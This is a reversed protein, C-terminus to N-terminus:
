SNTETNIYYKQKQIIEMVAPPVAGDPLAQGKALMERIGSSSVPFPPADNLIGTSLKECERPSWHELLANRDIRSGARPYTLVSFEAVIEKAKFWLHLTALSDGGILLMIDDGPYRRALERLTDISYSRGTRECEIDSIETGAIGNAAAALMERRVAYPSICRDTKHPPEPAPVLLVRDAIGEALIYRILAIHGAHVPDFTGGFMAIKM